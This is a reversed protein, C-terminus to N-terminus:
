NNPGKSVADFWLSDDTGWIENRQYTGYAHGALLLSFVVLISKKMLPRESRIFLLYASWGVVLCLGIYPLFTRHDNSVQYLPNFTSTPALTIFFWM